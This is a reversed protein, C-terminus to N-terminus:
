KSEIAVSSKIVDPAALDFRTRAVRHRLARLADLANWAHPRQTVNCCHPEPGQAHSEETTYGRHRASFGGHHKRRLATGACAFHMAQFPRQSLLNRELSFASEPQEIRGADPAVAPM